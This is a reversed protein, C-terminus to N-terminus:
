VAVPSFLRIQRQEHRVFRFKPACAFVPIKVGIMQMMKSALVVHAYRHLRQSTRAPGVAPVVTVTVLMSGFSNLRKNVMGFVATNRCYCM